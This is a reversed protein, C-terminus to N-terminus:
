GAHAAARKSQGPPIWMHKLFSIWDQRSGLIRYVAGHYQVEVVYLQEINNLFDPDIQLFMVKVLESNQVARDLTINLSKKPKGKIGDASASNVMATAVLLAILAFKLTKM